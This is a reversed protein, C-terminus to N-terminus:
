FRPTIRGLATVVDEFDQTRLSVDAAHNVEPLTSNLALGGGVRPFVEADSWGDGVHVVRSPSLQTRTLLARLGGLKDAQVSLPPGIVGAVVPPGAVGEEDDFGFTRRYYGTVYPPNHTLLAVRAGLRHLERIGETIHELKPTRAVVTEVEVVTHGTALDLLDALHEDEGIERAAFRRQSGEYAPLRGFAVAIERWGHVITLTGDIDVTVLRWPYEGV